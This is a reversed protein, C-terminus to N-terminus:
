PKKEPPQDTLRLVVLVILAAALLVVLTSLSKVAVERSFVDWIALVATVAFVATTGTLVISAWRAIANRTTM